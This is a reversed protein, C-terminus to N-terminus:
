RHLIESTVQMMWFKLAQQQVFQSLTQIIWSMLSSLYHWINKTCYISKLGNFLCNCANKTHRVVLFVFQITKAFSCEILYPVMLLVTNNKNQGTFNDFVTTLKGRAEGERLINLNTLTKMILSAINKSCNDDEKESYLHTHLYEGVLQAAENCKHVIDVMGFTYVSKPTLFSLEIIQTYDCIFVYHNNSPNVNINTDLNAAIESYRLCQRQYKATRIHQVAKNTMEPTVTSLKRNNSDGVEIDVVDLGEKLGFIGEGDNDDALGDLIDEEMGFDKRISFTNSSVSSLLLSLTLILIVLVLCM